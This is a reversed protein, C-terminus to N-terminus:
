EAIRGIRGLKPNYSYNKYNGLKNKKAFETHRRLFGADPETHDDFFLPKKNVKGM